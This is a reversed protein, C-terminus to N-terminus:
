AVAERIQIELDLFQQRCAQVEKRAAELQEVVFGPNTNVQQELQSLNMLMESVSKAANAEGGIYDWMLQQIRRPDGLILNDALQYMGKRELNFAAERLEDCLLFRRYRAEWEQFNGLEVLLHRAVDYEGERMRTILTSLHQKLITLTEDILGATNALADKMESKREQSLNAAKKVASFLGTLIDLVQSIGDIKITM